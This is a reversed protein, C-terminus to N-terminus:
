ILYGFKHFLIVFFQACLFQDAANVNEIARVVCFFYGNGVKQAIGGTYGIVIIVILGFPFSGGVQDLPVVLGPRKLPM